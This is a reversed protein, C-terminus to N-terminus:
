SVDIMLIKIVLVHYNIRTYSPNELTEHIFSNHYVMCIKIHSSIQEFSDDTKIKRATAIESLNLLLRKRREIHFHCM